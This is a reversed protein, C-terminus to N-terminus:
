IATDTLLTLLDRRILQDQRRRKQKYIRDIEQKRELTESNSLYKENKKQRKVKKEEITLTKHNM